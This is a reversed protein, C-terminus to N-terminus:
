VDPPHWKLLVKRAGNPETRRALVRSHLTISDGPSKNCVDGATRKETMSILQHQLGEMIGADFFDFM